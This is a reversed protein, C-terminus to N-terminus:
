DIQVPAMNQWRKIQLANLSGCIPVPKLSRGMHDDGLSQFVLAVSNLSKSSCVTSKYTFIYVYVLPFPDALLNAPTASSTFKLFEDHVCSLLGLSSTWSLSTLSGMFPIIFALFVESTNYSEIM